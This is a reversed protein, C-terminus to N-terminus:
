GIYRASGFYKHLVKPILVRGNKQVGSELIAIIMRPIAMATGNLTHVHLASKWDSTRYKTHLRRSQYDGCNSASTVEGWEGRGYMWAEMDYKRYASNGLEEAPMDLIRAHLGLNSIIESQLDKIEQLMEESKEQTTWAFLEVKTFQHVRYLGKSARGRAGAEARYATGVGVYKIPLDSEMFTKDIHMAALPIEATGALSLSGGEVHAAEATGEVQEITSNALQYIQDGHEDRPRFGCALVMETRVVDPPKVLTWGRKVAQDIAYSVLAHELLVGAGILYYWAHGTARAAAAMNLIGLREAIELHDPVPHHKEEKEGVTGCELITSPVDPHRWNPLSSALAILRDTVEKEQKNIKALQSKIEKLQSFINERGADDLGQLEGLLRHQEKILPQSLQIQERRQADLAIIEEISAAAKPLNRKICNDRMSEHNNVIGRIDLEPPRLIRPPKTSNFRRHIRPLIVARRLCKSINM